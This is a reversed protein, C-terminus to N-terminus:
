YLCINRNKGYLSLIERIRSTTPIPACRFCAYSAQAWIGTPTCAYALRLQVTQPIEAIFSAYEAEAFPHLRMLLRFNPTTPNM